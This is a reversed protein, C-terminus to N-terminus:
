FHIALPRIVRALILVDVRSAGASLLTKACETVTAGTTFVDDVLVIRKCALTTHYKSPIHFAHRVNLHRQERSYHGQSPTARRRRLVRLVMPIHTTEAIVKALLAAQNYRRVLLRRWHLPVPIIMDTNDLIDKGIRAMWASLTPALYTGDGHKLKLLLPRSNEDYTMVARATTFPPLNRACYGCLTTDPMDYPFPWGCCQCWPPQLFSIQGWCSPCLQSDEVGTAGCILCRHPLILNLISDTKQHLNLLFGTM